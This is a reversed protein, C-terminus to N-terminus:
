RPPLAAAADLVPALAVAARLSVLDRLAREVSYERLYGYGGHLQIATTAAPIAATLAVRLVSAAAVPDVPGPRAAVALARDMAAAVESRVDFLARAVTPLAALPAGFQEREGVYATTADLAGTAIGCAIAGVALHLLALGGSAAPQPETLELDFRVRHTRSGALGTRDLVPGHEADELFWARHGDVILLAPALHAVDVRADTGALVAIPEGGAIAMARKPDEALVAVAAHAHACALALAPWGRAIRSLTHLLLVTSGGGGGVVEPMAVSWLGQAVLLGRGRDVADGADDLPEDHDALLDDVLERLAVVDEDGAGVQWAVSM